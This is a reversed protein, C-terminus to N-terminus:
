VAVIEGREISRAEAYCIELADLATQVELPGASEGTTIANCVTELELGFGACWDAPAGLDPQTMTGDNRALTLPRDVTWEGGYTGAEFLM